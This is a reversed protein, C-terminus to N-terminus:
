EFIYKLISEFIDIQQELNEQKYFLIVQNYLSEDIQNIIKLMQKPAPAWLGKIDFYTELVSFLKPYLLLKTEEPSVQLKARFSRISDFYDFKLHELQWDSLPKKGQNYIKLLANKSEELFGTEDKVIIAVDWFRKSNDLNNKWFSVADEPYTEVIEFYQDNIKEIRRKFNAEPKIIILDIDSDPRNNGRAWSGFLIIGIISKDQNLIDLMQQYESNFQM